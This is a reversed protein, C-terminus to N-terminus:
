EVEKAELTVPYVTRNPQDSWSSGAKRDFGREELSIFTRADNAIAMPMIKMYVIDAFLTDKLRFEQGIPIDDFKVGAVGKAKTIKM